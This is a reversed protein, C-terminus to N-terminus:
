GHRVEWLCRRLRTAVLFFIAIAVLGIGLKEYDMDM